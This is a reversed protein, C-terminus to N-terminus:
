KDLDILMVTWGTHETNEIIVSKKRSKRLSFSRDKRNKIFMKIRILGDKSKLFYKGGPLDPILLKGENDTVGTIPEQNLTVPKKGNNAYIGFTRGSRPHKMLDFLQFELQYTRRSIQHMFWLRYGLWVLFCFIFVGIAALLWFLLQQWKKVAVLEKAMTEPQYPIRHGRVLLRHSNIMYPTCTLLTVLDKGNEIFLDKTDTPEIVKTQDVEYALTEDNIEIYFVDGIDLKPLDTFLKAQPLGRHGTIVAHTDKGGTPYSTGALLSSGKELLVATTSDFIPLQVKIKPITIIGLTHKQYYDKEVKKKKETKEAFPDAGPNGGQDALKKNKDAMEQRIKEMKQENERNAQKQYSSIIQQDLFNNLADSVFPYAMIGIGVLLLVFMLIDAFLRKKKGRM